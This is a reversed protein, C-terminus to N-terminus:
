GMPRDGLSLTYATVTVEKKEVTFGAQLVDQTDGACGQEEESGVCPWDSNVLGWRQTHFVCM